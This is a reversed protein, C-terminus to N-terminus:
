PKGADPAAAIKDFARGAETDRIFWGWGTDPDNIKLAERYVSAYDRSQTAVGFGFYCGEIRGADRAADRERTLREIVPVDDTVAVPEAGLEIVQAILRDRDRCLREIDDAQSLWSRFLDSMAARYPYCADTELQVLWREVTERDIKVDSM